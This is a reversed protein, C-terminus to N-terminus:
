STSYLCDLYHHTLDKVISRDPIKQSSGYVVAMSSNDIPKDKIVKIANKIDTIFRNDACSQTHTLTVCLHLAPPYQLVNLHWGNKSMEDNLQYINNSTFAIVNMEPNGIIEIEKIKNLERKIKQAIDIIEGTYQVYSEIGLKMMVAWAAAIVNGPRSGSLTPSAYIGGQWDTNVFYQNHLYDNSKYMIVSIGKPAYGYKHLDISISTIGDCNFDFMPINYGAQSLFPMLFGGLCADMHVPIKHRIGIGAISKMPDMVGHPFSPTSGVLLITNKNINREIEYLNVKYNNLKVKVLKIDLLHAAKDFAVHASEPIIIEPNKIGKKRYYDRYSKCALIISETGGSTTTGCVESGGKYLNICMSVVEAEMKRISVYVDPHLPNSYLFKNNAFKAVTYIDNNVHYVAGSIKGEAPNEDLTKNINIKRYIDKNFCRKDPITKYFPQNLELSKTISLRASNIKDAIKTNIFPLNRFLRFFKEYVYDTLLFKYSVYSLLSFILVNQIDM